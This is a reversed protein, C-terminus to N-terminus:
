RSSDAGANSTPWPKQELRTKIWDYVEPRHALAVHGIGPLLKVHEIPLVSDPAYHASAISVMADGFLLALRPDVFLSGAVLYHEIAPLLPLPHRGDRLDWM